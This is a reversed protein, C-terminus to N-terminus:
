NELRKILTDVLKTTTEPGLKEALQAPLKVIIEVSIQEPSKKKPESMNKLASLSHALIAAAAAVIPLVTHFDLESADNPKVFHVDGGTRVIDRVNARGTSECEKPLVERLVSENLHADQADLM